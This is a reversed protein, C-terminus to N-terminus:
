GRLIRLLGRFFNGNAMELMGPMVGGKMGGSIQMSLLLSGMLVDLTLLTSLFGTGLRRGYNGFSAASAKQM